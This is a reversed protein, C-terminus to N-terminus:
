GTGIALVKRAEDICDDAGTAKDPGVREALSRHVTTTLRDNKSNEECALYGSLLVKYTLDFGYSPINSEGYLLAGPELHDWDRVTGGGGPDIHRNAEQM